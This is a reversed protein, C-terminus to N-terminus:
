DGLEFRRALTFVGGGVPRGCALAPAFRWTKVAAIAAADLSPDVSSMVEIKLVAGDPGVTVRLVLRGEIGDARARDTYEIEQTRVLPSPKSPEENCEPEGPRAAPKDRPKLTRAVPEAAASKQTAQGAPRAPGVAIGPGDWDNGLTLGSDAPAAAPAAV